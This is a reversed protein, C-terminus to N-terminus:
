DTLGIADLRTDQDKRKGGKREEADKATLEKKRRNQCNQCNGSGRKDANILPLTDAKKKAIKADKATFIQVRANERDNAALGQRLDASM